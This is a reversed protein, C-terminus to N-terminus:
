SISIFPRHLLIYDFRMVLIRAPHTKVHKPRVLYLLKIDLQTFFQINREVNVRAFPLSTPKVTDTGPLYVPNACVLRDRRLRSRERWHIRCRGSRYIKRSLVFFIVERKLSLTPFPYLPADSHRVKKKLCCRRYYLHIVRHGRRNLPLALTIDNQAYAFFRPHM